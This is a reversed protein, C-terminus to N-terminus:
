RGVASRTFRANPTSAAGRGTRGLGDARQEVLPAGDSLKSQARDRPSCGECPRRQREIMAIGGLSAWAEALDPELKLAKRAAQEAEELAPRREPPRQLRDAFSLTDAFGVYALAFKPDLAIAKRFFREAEDLSAPARPWGNSASSTPRGLRLTRRRSPEVRAQEAPTLAAKARWRHRQRGREPDRLHQRRHTRPRLERGLPACRNGCRYAPRTVRVRDGARQVGGELIKTM